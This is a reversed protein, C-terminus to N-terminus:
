RYAPPMEIPLGWKLKVQEEAICGGVLAGSLVMAAVVGLNPSRAALALGGGVLSGLVAGGLSGRWLEEQFPASELIDKPDPRGEPPKPMPRSPPQPIPRHSLIKM